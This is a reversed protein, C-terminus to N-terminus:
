RFDIRQHTTSKPRGHMLPKEIAVTNCRLWEVTRRHGEPVKRASTHVETGNQEM